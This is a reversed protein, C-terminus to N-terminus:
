FTGHVIASVRQPDYLEVGGFADPYLQNAARETLVLNIIPDQYYPGARFVNGDTVAQLESGVSHDTMFEVVTDRFKKESYDEFGIIAIVDPDIELLTEYDFSPGGAYYDKMGAKALADRVELDRWQKSDAGKGILNPSFETPEDEM